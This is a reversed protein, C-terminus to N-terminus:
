AVVRHKLAQSYYQKIPQPAYLLRDLWTIVNYYYFNFGPSQPYQDLIQEQEQPTYRQSVYYLASQRVSDESNYLLNVVAERPLNISHNLAFALVNRRLDTHESTIFKLIYDVQHAPDIKLLTDVAAWRTDSTSDTIFRNVLEVDALTGDQKILSLLSTSIENTYIGGDPSALLNRVLPLDDPQYHAVLLNVASRMFSGLVFTDKKAKNVFDSEPGFLTTLREVEVGRLRAFRSTLDDRLIDRYDAYYKKILALYYLAGNTQWDVGKELEEQSMGQYVALRLADEDISSHLMQWSPLSVNSPTFYGYLYSPRTGVSPKAPRILLKELDDNQIPYGRSVLEFTALISLEYDNRRLLNLLFDMKLSKRRVELAKFRIADEGEEILTQVKEISARSIAGDLEDESYRRESPTLTLYFNIAADPDAKTLTRILTAQVERKRIDEISLLSYLLDIDAQTFQDSLLEFVEQKITAAENIILARAQEDFLSSDVLNLIQLSVLKVEDLTDNQILNVLLDPLKDPAIAQWFWGAKTDDTDTLLARFVALKEFLKLSIRSRNQYIYQLDHSQFLQTKYGPESDYYLSQVALHARAISLKSLKEHTNTSLGNLVTQVSTEAELIGDPADDVVMTEAGLEPTIVNHVFHISLYDTLADTLQREWTMENEFTQYLVERKTEVQKRFELVQRAQEGPDALTEIPMNKFFLWIDKMQGKAKLDLALEFEEEFGSSYKGSQTGWRKWLLGILLDCGVLDKNIIEQPRGTGPLTDEWGILEITVGLNRALHRNLRDVVQRTQRREEQLDGPSAIFISLVARQRFQHRDEM